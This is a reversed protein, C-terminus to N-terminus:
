SNEYYDQMSYVINESQNIVLKKLSEDEGEYDFIKLVCEKQYPSAGSYGSYDIPIPQMIKLSIEYVGEEPVLMIGSIEDKFIPNEEVLFILKKEFEPFALFNNSFVIEANLNGSDVNEKALYYESPIFYYFLDLKNRCFKGIYNITHKGFYHKNFNVYGNKYEGNIEFEGESDTGYSQIKGDLYIDLHNINFAYHIGKVSYYGKEVQLSFYKEEPNM